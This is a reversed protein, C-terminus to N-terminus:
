RTAKLWSNRSTINLWKQNVDETSRASVVDDIETIIGLVRMATRLSMASQNTNALLDLNSLLCEDISASVESLAASTNLSQFVRFVTAAPSSNLPSVPIDWQRLSTASQLMSGFSTSTDKSDGPASFMSNAIGQLNTSNLARLVGYKNASEAMQIESDYQASQFLLNKLGSSEHELTEMVSDLSAKKHIGYYLDPDDINKFVEHLLDSPPDYKALSSRRSSFTVRSAHIELFSLSTKPLYCRNAAVSAEGYDIDLWQDREMISTEQPRPQDRLYLICNIILRAHPITDDQVEGLAQRFIGSITDRVTAEGYLEALLLDHLIYPLLKVALGPIANLVKTLPGIVPDQPIAKSLFLATNRAWDVSTLGPEWGVPQELRKLESASLPIAPCHYPSWILGNMLSPPIVNQCEDFGSGQINTIVIQLTREVLGVELHSSNQLMNCLIEIISAKSNCNIDMSLKPEHMEFLSPEQERMLVDSIKGTTAFSGGIVRAAWLRYEPGPQFNQLTQCVAVTTAVPDNADGIIGNRYDSLRKFDACLLSVVHDSIPKSLLSQNSNQDRLVELLLEHESTGESTSEPNCIDKSSKTLRRFAEETETSLTPSSYTDLFQSFWEFFEHIKAHVIAFQNERTTTEPSLGVMPKLSVFTSVAIGAMFGPNEAMYSKGAELLYWFIGLADESCYIDTLFPRLAHLMMEYPYDQLMVPGAVCVLIRIKRIVSCAHLSGLAPHISEILTRSVFCTLTPTWITEFEYGSRRCLFELEDLLYRARFSPQQNAPLIINSASKGTIQKLINLAGHFNERKSFAKAIQDYQDLSKFFTAIVQPFQKEIVEVFRDAGLAKKIRTEVGKPHSGQGPPISIDRAISYAEAKYFSAVLIQDFPANECKSLETAEDENARMMVQGVIEDCVDSLMDRLSAYGFVSFPMSKIPQTETWTYLIQSSFLRFLEKADLLGLTKAVDSLCKEAYWLSTPVQAPTEFMHYISRRLLTHWQSALRALIYLRLAIGENWDPDRPLSELIDDFIADHDKLVFQSFLGPILNAANFKVLIDGEQLITFLSTRPSPSSQGSMYTPNSSIVAGLLDSLAIFVRSSAKGTSLLVDTFWTYVDLASESLSDERAHTWSDVFCTMMHICLNHASECRELEYTQLCKEGLDELIDLLSDRAAGSFSRYVDPMFGHAALLDAESLEALYRALDENLVAQDPQAADRQKKQFISLQITICRQFTAADAILPLSERNAMLIQDNLALAENAGSLPDDLDMAEDDDLSVRGSQWRRHNELIDSIQPVLPKLSRSVVSTPDFLCTSDLLPSILELCAQIFTVEREALFSCINSWLNHNNSRLEELRSASQSPLSEVYLAVLICFSAMIQLLDVTIHHSKENSLSQWTQLFMESKTQLLDLVVADNPDQRTSQELSLVGTTTWPNTSDIARELYFIYSLLDQNRHFFHWYKAILGTPVRCQSRPLGFPRNTCALLLNLLDIPRAFAAVQATQIRDTVTGLQKINAFFTDLSCQTSFINVM